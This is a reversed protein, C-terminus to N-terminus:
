WNSACPTTFKESAQDDHGSGVVTLGALGGLAADEELELLEALLNADGGDILRGPDLHDDDARGLEAMDLHLAERQLLEAVFEAQGGVRRGWGRRARAFPGSASTSFKAGAAFRSRNGELM